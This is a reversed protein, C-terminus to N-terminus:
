SAQELREDEVARIAVARGLRASEYTAEIWAQIARGDEGSPSPRRKRLVADAFWAVYSLNVDVKPLPGFDHWRGPTVGELAKLTYFRSARELMITGADGVLRIEILNELGRAACSGFFSGIAGGEFECAVSIVDEVEVGPPSDLVGSVANVRTLDKGIL